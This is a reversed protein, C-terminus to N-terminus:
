NNIQNLCDKCLNLQVQDITKITEAADRMFCNENPCHPLGLNHGLEHLVIKKLRSIFVEKKPYSIRYTSVVCSPGPRYGLGFIGWDNYKSAPKKVVGSEDHKTTSIDKAILGVVFDVTDPKTTKLYRILSDARYRPSKINVFCHKPIDIKSSIQTQFHYYTTIANAVTDQLETPFDGLPQIVVVRQFETPAEICGLAALSIIFAPLWKM